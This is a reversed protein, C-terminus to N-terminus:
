RTWNPCTPPPAIGLYQQSEEPTLNRALRQCATEVMAPLGAAWVRAEGDRSATVFFKEDPSYSATYVFGKATVRIIEQWSRADWVRATKDRSATLVRSGDRAFVASFITDEHLLRAIIKLDPITRVQVSHEADGAVLL